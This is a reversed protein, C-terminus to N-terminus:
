DDEVDGAEGGVIGFPIRSSITQMVPVGSTCFCIISLIGEPDGRRCYGEQISNGSVQALLDESIGLHNSFFRWLHSCRLRNQSARYGNISDTLSHHQNPRFALNPRHARKPHALKIQSCSGKGINYLLKTLAMFRGLFVQQSPSIYGPFITPGIHKDVFRISNQKVACSSLGVSLLVIGNLMFHMPRLQFLLYQLDNFMPNLADPEASGPDHLFEKNEEQSMSVANAPKITQSSLHTIGKHHFRESSCLDGYVKTFIAM